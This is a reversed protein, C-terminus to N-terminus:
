CCRATKHFSDVPWSGCMSVLQITMVWIGIVNYTMKSTLSWPKSSPSPLTDLSWKVTINFAYVEMGAKQSHWFFLNGKSFQQHITAVNLLSSGDSRWLSARSRVLVIVTLDVHEQCLLPMWIFTNKTYTSHRGLIETKIMLISIIELDLDYMSVTISPVLASEEMTQRSRSKFLSLLIALCIRHVPGLVWTITLPM